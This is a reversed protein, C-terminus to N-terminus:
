GGIHEEVTTLVKRACAVCGPTAEVGCSRYLLRLRVSISGRCLCPRILRGLEADEGDLCIRCQKTEGNEQTEAGPEAQTGDEDRRADPNGDDQAQEEHRVDLNEPM